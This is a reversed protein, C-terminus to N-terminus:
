RLRRRRPHTEPLGNINTHINIEKIYTKKTTPGYGTQTTCQQKRNHAHLWDLLAAFQKAYRPCRNMTTYQLFMEHIFILTVTVIKHQMTVSIYSIVSVLAVPHQFVINYLSLRITKTHLDM